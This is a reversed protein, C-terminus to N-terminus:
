LNVENGTDGGKGTIGFVRHNNLEGGDLLGGYQIPIHEPKIYKCLTEFVQGRKVLVFKGLESYEINPYLLRKISLNVSVYWPDNISIMGPYNDLLIEYFLDDAAMLEDIPEQTFDYAAVVSNIRGPHMRIGRELVQLRWKNFKDIKEDTGLIKHNLHENLTRYDNYYVRHGQRDVGHIYIAINELQKFEPFQQELIDVQGFYAKRWSRCDILMNYSDQVSFETAKLFNCLIVDAESTNTILPIGWLSVTEEEDNKVRCALM